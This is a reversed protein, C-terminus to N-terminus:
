LVKNDDGRELIYIGGPTTDLDYEYIRFLVPYQPHIGKAILPKQINASELFVNPCKGQAERLGRGILPVYSRVRLIGGIHSHVIARSLQAGEWEMDIMFNGRAVLGTIKGTKWADPLAPLLHVAGDYSQLLMEAVGATYGFNGDIQFPPHADFMNPYIRGAPYDKVVDDSPLLNFLNQIIRYAHNGDLMRAWFNIKWGLSWGTAMDGRYLLTNKAAQFLLPNKWPSIQNNPYLGYLHSIHRHEDAPNDLDSLWEQLQNYKGIQMPPLKTIMQKLSDQYTKDEGVIYSAKLTNSLADFAIQSDMTCGAIIPSSCGNPAHEPSVSPVTVMWGYVPHPKLFDLYFDATGRLIPYYKKLFYKNGTFLYHQWIDQALWAGGNPWMGWYAGDVLGTIRWIDTNHHAVWGKCGYMERAAESGTVSLDKLMSWLPEHTESLNTVEAPWYNMETNINITYKSDWPAHVEKNWIGQLNAPQGGPQSSCILLYRGYQFLLTALSQDKGEHFHKIREDTPLKPGETEALKFSVRAFQNRYACIHKDLAVNYPRQMAKNLSLKLQKVASGNTDHYNIFNTALSIYLVVEMANAICLKDGSVYTEGDCKVNVQGRLSLAAPIGEQAIGEYQINLSKKKIEVKHPLPASYSLSFNLAGVKDAQIRMVVVDDVFSAFLTRTFTVSDIKYRTTAIANSLDLGRYYNAPQKHGVFDLFLSGATLYTMGHQKTMFTRDILQHAEQNKGDFVLRRVEPLSKKAQPNINNYPSGAWFTEENLQLEEREVRGYTMVGIHSNGLPLAETWNAAPKNYWLKLDDARSFHCVFFICFFLIFHKM